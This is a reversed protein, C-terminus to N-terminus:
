ELRQVSDGDGGHFAGQKQNSGDKGSCRERQHRSRRAFFLVFPLLSRLPVWEGFPVLRRKQYQSPIRGDTTMLGNSAM